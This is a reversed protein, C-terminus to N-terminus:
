MPLLLQTPRRDQTKARANSLVMHRTKIGYRKCIKYVQGPNIGMSSAIAAQTLGNRALRIIKGLIDAEKQRKM